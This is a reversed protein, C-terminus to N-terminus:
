GIRPILHPENSRSGILTETKNPKGGILGSLRPSPCPRADKTIIERWRQFRFFPYDREGVKNHNCLQEYRLWRGGPVRGKRARGRGRFKAPRSMRGQGARTVAPRKPSVFPLDEDSSDETYDVTPLNRSPRGWGFM